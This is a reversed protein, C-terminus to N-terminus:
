ERCREVAVYGAQRPSDAFDDRRRRCRVYDHAMVAATLFGAAGGVEGTRARGLRTPRPPQVPEAAMDIHQDVVGADELGRRDVLTMVVPNGPTLPRHPDVKRGRGFEATEGDEMKACLAATAEDIDRAAGGIAAIRRLM